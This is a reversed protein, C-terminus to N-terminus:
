SLWGQDLSTNTDFVCYEAQQKQVEWGGAALADTLAQVRQEFVAKPGYERLTVFRTPVEGKLANRSLHAQHNLCINQLEAAKFFPVKGHWEYYNEGTQAVQNRIWESYSAPIEIKIRKVPFALANLLQAYTTATTVAASLSEGYIVKSLMPQHICAGRALEVVLPKGEHQHCFHVFSDIRKESLGAITIHIEFPVEQRQM